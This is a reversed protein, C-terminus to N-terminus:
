HLVRARNVFRSSIYCELGISLGVVLTVARARNVFRSSIYCELGISLGM